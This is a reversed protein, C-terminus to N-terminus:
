RSRPTVPADFRDVRIPTIAITGTSLRPVALAAPEELPTPDIADVAVAAIPDGLPADMADDEAAGSGVADGEAIPTAGGRPARSHAVGAGRAIRPARAASEGDIRPSSAAAIAPDTARSGTIDRGPGVTAPTGTSPSDTAPTGVATTAQRAAPAPLAPPRRSMWLAGGALTGLLLVAATAWALRPGVFMRRPESEPKRGTGREPGQARLASMVRAPDAAADDVRTMERLVADLAGNLRADAEGEAGATEGGHAGDGVDTEPTERSALRREQLRKTFDWKSM